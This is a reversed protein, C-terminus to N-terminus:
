ASSTIASALCAISPIAASPVGGQGAAGTRRHLNASRRPSCIDGPEAIRTPSTCWKRPIPHDEGFESKGQFFPLGEGHTNYTNGPPAQGMIIDALDTLPSTTWGEENV